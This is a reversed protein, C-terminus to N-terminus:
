RGAGGVAFRGMPRYCHRCPVLHQTKMVTTATVEDEYTRAQEAALGEIGCAPTARALDHLQMTRKDWLWPVRGGADHPLM